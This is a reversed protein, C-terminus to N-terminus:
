CSTFGHIVGFELFNLVGDKHRDQGNKGTQNDHANEDEYQLFGEKFGIADEKGLSKPTLFVTVANENGRQFAGSRDDQRAQGRYHGETGPQEADPLFTLIEQACGGSGPQSVCYVQRGDDVWYNQYQGPHQNASSVAPDRTKQLDLYPDVFQQSGDHQIGNRHQDNFVKHLERHAAIAARCCM